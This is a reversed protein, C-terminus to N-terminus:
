VAALFILLCHLYIAGLFLAPASCVLIGSAAAVPRARVLLRYSSLSGLLISVGASFGLALLSVPQEWPVPLRRPEVYAAAAVARLLLPPVLQFLLACVAVLAAKSSEFSQTAM